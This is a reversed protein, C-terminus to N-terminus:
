EKEDPFLEGLDIDFNDLATGTKVAISQKKNAESGSVPTATVDLDLEDLQLDELGSGAGSDLSPPSEDVVAAVPEASQTEFAEELVPVESEDANPGLDSIDLDSFDLDPMASEEGAGSEDDELIFEDKPAAEELDSLEMVVDEEDDDLDLIFDSEEEVGSEDLDLEIEPMDLDFDEVASEKELAFETEMGDSEVVDQVVEDTATNDMSAQGDDQDSSFQLFAPALYNLVTGNIEASTASIDKNCKVCSELHDFSIYGCKPCRM